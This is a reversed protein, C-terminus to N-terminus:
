VGESDRSIKGYRVCVSQLPHKARTIFNVKVEMAGFRRRHQQPHGDVRRPDGICFAGAPAVVVRNRAIGGWPSSTEGERARVPDIARVNHLTHRRVPAALTM